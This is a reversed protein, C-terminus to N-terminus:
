GNLERLGTSVDKGDGDAGGIPTASAGDEGDGNGNGDGDGDGDGEDGTTMLTTSTAAPSTLSKVRACLDDIFRCTMLANFLWGLRASMVRKTSDAETRMVIEM